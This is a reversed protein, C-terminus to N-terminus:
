ADETGSTQPAQQAGPPRPLTDSVQAFAGDSAWASAARGARGGQRRSGYRREFAVWSIGFYM